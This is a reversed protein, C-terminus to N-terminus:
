GLLYLLITITAISITTSILVSTSVLEPKAEYQNAYMTAVVASPMAAMIILVKALLPELPIFLTLIFAIIPSIVLRLVISYTVSGWEMEKIKIFALQMGLMLMVLPIAAGALLDLISVIVDPLKISSFNFAIAVATVYIIPVQFVQKIAEKLPLNGRAAYFLGFTHMSLSQLIFFSVAYDFGVAGYAFLIVPIGYNGANMFATNLIYASEYAPSLKKVKVYVKNIIILAGFLIVFFLLMYVYQM